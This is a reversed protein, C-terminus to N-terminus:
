PGTDQPIRNKYGEYIDEAVSHMRLYREPAFLDTQIRLFIEGREMESVIKKEKRLSIRAGELLGIGFVMCVAESVPPDEEGSYLEKTGQLKLNMYHTTFGAATFARKKYSLLIICALAFFIIAMLYSMEVSFGARFRSKLSNAPFISRKEESM